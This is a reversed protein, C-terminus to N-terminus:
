RLKPPDHLTPPFPLEGQRNRYAASRKTKRVNAEHEVTHIHTAIETGAFFAGCYLCHFPKDTPKGPM